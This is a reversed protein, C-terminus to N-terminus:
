NGVLLHFHKAQEIIISNAAADGREAVHLTFVAPDRVLLLALLAAFAVGFVAATGYRWGGPDAAPPVTRPEADLMQDPM